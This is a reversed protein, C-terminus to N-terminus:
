PDSARDTQRYGQMGRIVPQAVRLRDLAPVVGATSLTVRRKSLGYASDDLMLHMARVFHDFNLLPEGMGMMVVNTIVREGKPDKGLARNAVWLQAIIEAADLNRNFGQRGTACFSCDLACGVQSSVCLTGRDEEPIFVTEICNGDALRLLWKRTGDQALQDTVVEPTHIEAADILRTRLPKGINTMAAFDQVGYQHIWQLVQTGRFPKEGMDAFFATMAARDLGMLNMKGSTQM